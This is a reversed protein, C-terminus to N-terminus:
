LIMQLFLEVSLVPINAQSAEETINAVVVNTLTKVLAISILFFTSM